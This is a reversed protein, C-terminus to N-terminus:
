ADDRKREADEGQPDPLKGVSEDKEGEETDPKRKGPDKPQAM